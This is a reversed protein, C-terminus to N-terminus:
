DPVEQVQYALANTPCWAVCMPLEPGPEGCMDCKLPIGAADPEQFQRRSPCAARCFSCDGYEKGNIVLTTRGPCEVESYPGALVPVYVGNEKDEFVRIRAGSPNINSYQVEAHYASCIMECIRCGTCKNVDINIRKIKKM